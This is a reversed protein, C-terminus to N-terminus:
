LSMMDTELCFLYHPLWCDDGKLGLVAWHRELAVLRDLLLHFDIEHCLLLLTPIATRHGVM